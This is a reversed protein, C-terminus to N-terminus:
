NGYVVPKFPTPLAWLEMKEGRGRIVHQGAKEMQSIIAQAAADGKAAELARDTVLMTTGLQRTLEEVRAAVNVTDGIVTFELRRDDGVDGAVVPGFDMGVSITIPAKNQALREAKWAEVAVIMDFGASLMNGAGATDRGTAGFTAMLGDGLFKDIAGHHRFVAQGLRTHLGRLITIIEHAPLTEALPTFGVVDAFLIGARTARPKIFATNNEMVEDVVAPSVHRAIQGRTRETIAQRRVLERSRRVLFATALTFSVVGVLDGVLRNLSLFNPNELAARIEQITTVALDLETVTDPLMTLWTVQAVRVLAIVSGTWVVMRWNASYSAHILFFLFWFFPSLEFIQIPTLVPTGFPNPLAFFVGMLAIDLAFLAHTLRFRGHSWRAAAYHALSTPLYIAASALQWWYHADSVAEQIALWLIIPLLAAARVKAALMLAERQDRVFVRALRVSLTAPVRKASM